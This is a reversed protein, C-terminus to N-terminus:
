AKPKGLKALLRGFYTRDLGAIRAAETQNGRTRQLLAAVYQRTFSEVLADRQALYPVDLRPASSAAAAVDASSPPAAPSGLTGLAVYALVANRLERVNGPLPRQSLEEIVDEDLDPLGEQRAFLRALAPIDARRERLPPVQLTVVALRYYLDQRFRGEGVLGALDRHTAAVVRVHVKRTTDEGVPTIEGTELARLLAPQVDLPLEGIEDLFLTGGDASGFAGRRADVAGTFAGRRHGFLVSAVLERPIAGCNLPVFPGSSVVSGEHLARVVLEKGVGSEGAVLCPVLSGDLRAIMGFLSLMAPAAGVMGRFASAPAPGAPDVVHESDLDIALPVTGLLVRTGPSLVASDIRQGMYFTGNRSGLDKVHVGEPVLRFEAHARSVTESDIILAARSGSGVVCSGSALRLESPQAPAGPRLVVPLPDVLVRRAHITRTRTPEDNSM